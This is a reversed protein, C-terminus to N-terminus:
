KGATAPARLGDDFKVPMRVTENRETNAPNIVFNSFVIVDKKLSQTRDHVLNSLSFLTALVLVM